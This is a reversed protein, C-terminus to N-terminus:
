GYSAHHPDYMKGDSKAHHKVYDDMTKHHTAKGHGGYRDAGKKAPTKESHGSSAQYHHDGGYYDDMASHSVKAHKAAAKGVAKRVKSANSSTHSMNHIVHSEEGDHTMMTLKGAEENLKSTEERLQFFTKMVQKEENFLNITTKM